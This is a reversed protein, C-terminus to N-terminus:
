SISKLFEERTMKPAPEYSTYRGAKIDYQTALREKKGKLSRPNTLKAKGLEQNRAESRELERLYKKTQKRTM